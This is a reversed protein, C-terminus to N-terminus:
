LFLVYLSPPPPNSRQHQVRLHRRTLTGGAEPSLQLQTTVGAADTLTVDPPVNAIEEEAEM